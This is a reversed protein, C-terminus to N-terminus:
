GAAAPLPRRCTLAQEPKAIAKILEATRFKNRVVGRPMAWQHRPMRRHDSQAAISLHRGLLAFQASASRSSPKPRAGEGATKASSVIPAGGNENDAIRALRVAVRSILTSSCRWIPKPLDISSSVALAVGCPFM